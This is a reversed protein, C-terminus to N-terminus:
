RKPKPHDYRLKQITKGQRGLISYDGEFLDRFEPNVAIEDKISKEKQRAVVANYKMKEMSHPFLTNVCTYFFERDNPSDCYDLEPLLQLIRESNKLNMAKIVESPQCEKFQPVFCPKLEHFRFFFKEGAIIERM